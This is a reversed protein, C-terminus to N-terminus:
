ECALASIVVMLTPGIRAGSVTVSVALATVCSIRSTIDFERIHTLIMELGV